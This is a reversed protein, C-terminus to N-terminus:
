PSFGSPRPGRPAVEGWGEEGILPVFGVGGLDEQEFGDTKRTIRVLRQEGAPEGLPIVLRGGPKLQRKLSEPPQPGCAAVLIADFPAADPWGLTGDGAIVRVNRLGIAALRKAAQAALEPHREITHVEGAIHSMVAAAYGSGAGVELVSAGPALCAAEIMLAVIYPQSITQGAEIPLPTDDYALDRLESSLFAERPTKAMADLVRPDKVGRRVLQREVMQARAHPMDLM